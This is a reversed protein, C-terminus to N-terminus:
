SFDADKFGPLSNPSKPMLRCLFGILQMGGVTIKAGESEYELDTGGSERSYSGSFSFPGWGGCAQATIKERHESFHREFDSSEIVLDKVFLAVTAYAPLRGNPPVGGDSVVEEHPWEAGKRLIWGRNTLFEPSFWPRIILVQTASFSMKFDKIEMDENNRFNSGSVSAGANWFGLNLGGGGSWASSAWDQTSRFNSSDYQFTTWGTSKAFNGPVVTAALYPLGTGIDTLQGMQIRNLIEAKTLRLSRATTQDIYALIDKVENRYGGAVWEDYAATVQAELIAGLFLFENVAAVGAAGTASLALVQKTRFERAAALYKTYRDKYAKLVPGDAPKEAGLLDKETTYLFQRFKELKAKEDGSLQQDLVRSATVVEKFIASLRDGAPTFVARQAENPYVGSIAPVFDVAMSFNFQQKAYARVQEATLIAAGSAEAFEFDNYGFPIGPQCWVIKARAEPDAPVKGDQGTFINNLSGLLDQGISQLTPM